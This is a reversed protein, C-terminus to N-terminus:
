KINTDGDIHASSGWRRLDEKDGGTSVLIAWFSSMTAWLSNTCVYQIGHEACYARVVHAIEPLRYNSYMPFLHHEIQYNIGGFWRTWLVGIAGSEVPLFDGSNQIQRRLWCPGNYHNRRTALLNHNVVINISYLGCYGLVFIVTFRWGLSVLLVLHSTMAVYHYWPVPSWASRVALSEKSRYGIAQTVAQPLLLGFILPIWAWHNDVKASFVSKVDPAPSGYLADDPDRHPDGTYSHHANVHHEHWSSAKWGVLANAVWSVRENGTPSALLAYHSSDHLINFLLGVFCVAAPVGLISYGTRVFLGICSMWVIFQVTPWVWFARPPTRRGLTQEVRRKLEQYATFVIADGAGGGGVVCEELTQTIKPWASQPHFAHVQPAIDLDPRLAARELVLQGGPHDIHSIDCRRNKYTVIMSKKKFVDFV